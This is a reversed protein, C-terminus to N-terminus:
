ALSQETGLAAVGDNRAATQQTEPLRLSPGNRTTKEL